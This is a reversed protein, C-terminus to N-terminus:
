LEDVPAHLGLAHYGADIYITEGTVMTAWDSGLWVAMNGVDDQTVLTRLPSSDAAYASMRRFGAIGSASLTKIPGASIANVRIQSPGLDFALYRVSAELAAKAVGMVNYHPMVKEAGYYSLTMISGGNPMLKAARQSLAVLSYASTELALSFGKRSTDVFLGDLDEREAYAIAHVMIDVTGFRDKAKAFLADIETDDNANCREVFDIDLEEALPQVRRELKELAYSIGLTAGERHFAKTIGWAISDKNAVGFILANKGSLLGM